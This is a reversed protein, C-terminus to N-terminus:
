ASIRRVALVTRDDHAPAGNTHATVAAFLEGVLREMRLGPNAAALSAIGEVGFDAGNDGPAPAESLGDTYALLVSGPALEARSATYTVDPLLGLPPGLARLESFAGSPAILLVPNHGASVWELEGNNRLYALFVTVFKSDPTSTLVHVHLKRVLEELTPSSQVLIRVAAQLSAALLAAPVGKGAVDGLMLFLGQPTAIVDYVDGGVRRSPESKAAIDLGPPTPISAPLLQRQIAAALELERLTREQELSELHLTASELAVAGESAYLALTEADTAAFPATGGRVEREALALVGLRGRRGTVPVALRKPEVVGEDPLLRAEDASLVAGGVRAAMMCGGDACVETTEAGTIRAGLNAAGQATLWVEGRRADLLATAHMLLEEAIRAPELTGGLAEGIARLSEVEWMRRRESFRAQKLDERLVWSGLVVAAALRLADPPDVGGALDLWFVDRGSPLEFRRSAVPSAGTSALAEAARGIVGGVAGTEAVLAVLVAHPLPTGDEKQPHAACELVKLVGNM